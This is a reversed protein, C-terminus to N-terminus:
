GASRSHRAATRRGRSTERCPAAIDDACMGSFTHPSGGSSPSGPRCRRPRGHEADDGAEDRDAALADIEGHDRQRQRLHQIEEVQLRREGCPSSPMWPTGCPRRNPMKSRTWASPARNRRAPRDEQEAEQQDVAGDIRREALHQLGDALVLRAGNREAVLGVVVLQEGEDQRRRQGAEGARQLHEDRLVGRQGVHVPRHGAFDHQHRQDAAEAGDEPRDDAGEDIM